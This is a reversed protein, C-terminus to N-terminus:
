GLRPMAACIGGIVEGQRYPDIKGYSTMTTAVNERGLNQSWVKVEEPTRCTNQMVHGLTHRFSHPAFYRLGAATFAKRFIECITTDSLAM